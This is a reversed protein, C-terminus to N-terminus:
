KVQAVPKLEEREDGVAYVHWREHQPVVEIQDAEIACDDDGVGDRGGAETGTSIPKRPPIQQDPVVHDGAGRVARVEDSRGNRHPLALPDKLVLEAQVGGRAASQQYVVRPTRKIRIGGCLSSASM